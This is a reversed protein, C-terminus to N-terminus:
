KMGSYKKNRHFIKQPLLLREGKLGEAFLHATTILITNSCVYLCIASKTIPQICCVATLWRNALADRLYKVFKVKNLV